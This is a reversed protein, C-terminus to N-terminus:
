QKSQDPQTSAISQADEQTPLRNEKTSRLHHIKQKFKEMKDKLLNIEKTLAKQDLKYEIRSKFRTRKPGKSMARGIISGM